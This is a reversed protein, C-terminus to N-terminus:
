RIEHLSALGKTTHCATAAEAERHALSIADSM